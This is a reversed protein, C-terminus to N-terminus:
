RRRGRPLGVERRVWVQALVVAWMRLPRWAEAIALVRARDPPEDLGHLQQVAFRTVDDDPVDDVVGAGRYVIGTAFFPGIGPIRRVEALADPVPMARLRERDLVGSLAAEAVEHLRELKTAGIGRIESLGSLTRPDPFAAFREGGVDVLAGHEQAMRERIARSQRMSSRHSIVFHAAAEYPSRFLVPRLWRYREQLEGLAADRAGVGPWASGDVDLSLTALAQRRAAEAVAGGVGFVELEVATGVARVVVAASAQFGEVPMAMVLASPDSSPSPWPGFFQRQHALDYPGRPEVAMPSDDPLQEPDPM